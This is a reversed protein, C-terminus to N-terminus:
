EKGNEQGRLGAMRMLAEIQELPESSWTIRVQACDAGDLLARADGTLLAQYAQDVLALKQLSETLDYTREALWAFAAEEIEDTGFETTQAWTLLRVAIQVAATQSAESTGPLIAGIEDLIPLTLVPPVDAAGPTDSTSCTVSDESITVYLREQAADYYFSAEALITDDKAMARVTFLIARDEASSLQAIDGDTFIWEGAHLASGDANECVLSSDATRLGIASIDSRELRVYVGRKEAGPTDRAGTRETCGTLLLAALLATVSLLAAIIKRNRKM